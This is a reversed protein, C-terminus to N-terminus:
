GEREEELGLEANGVEADDVVYLLFVMLNM